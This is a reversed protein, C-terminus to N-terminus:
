KPLTKNAVLQKLLLLFVLAQKGWLETGHRQARQCRLLKEWEWFAMLCENTHTIQDRTLTTRGKSSASAANEVKGRVKTKQM